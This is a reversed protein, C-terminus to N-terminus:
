ENDSDIEMPEGMDILIPNGMFDLRVINGMADYSNLIYLYQLNNDVCYTIIGENQYYQNSQVDFLYYVGENSKGYAICHRTGDQRQLGGIAAYGPPISDYINTLITELNGGNILITPIHDSPTFHHTYDPYAVNMIEIINEITLGSNMSLQQYHRVSEYNLGFLSFVSPCCDMGHGLNNHHPNVFTNLAENTLIKRFGGRTINKKHSNKQRKKGNKKITKCKNKKKTILSISNKRAKKHINNKKM